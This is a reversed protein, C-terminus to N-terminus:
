EEVHLTVPSGAQAFDTVIEGLRTHNSMFGASTQVTVPQGPQVHPRNQQFDRLHDPHRLTIVIGGGNGGHEPIDPPSCTLRVPLSFGANLTFSTGCAVVITPIAPASM